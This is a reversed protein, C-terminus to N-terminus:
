RQPPAVEIFLLDLPAIKVDFTSRAPTLTSKRLETAPKSQHYVRAKWNAGVPLERFSVEADVPESTYNYIVVLVRGSEPERLAYTLVNPLPFKTKMRVQSFPQIDAWKMLDSMWPTWQDAADIVPLGNFFLVEGRGFPIKWAMPKGSSDRGIVEGKCSTNAGSRYLQAKFPKGGPLTMEVAVPDESWEPDSIIGLENRVANTPQEGERRFSTNWLVLKGGNRVFELARRQVSEPIDPHGGDIYLKVNRLKEDGTKETLEYYPPLGNYYNAAKLVGALGGWNNIVVRDWETQRRIRRVPRCNEYHTNDYVFGGILAIESDDILNFRSIDALKPALVRLDNWSRWTVPNAYAEEELGPAGVWRVTGRSLLPIIAFLGSNYALYSPAPEGWEFCILKPQYRYQDYQFYERGHEISFNGVCLRGAEALASIERGLPTDDEHAEAAFFKMEPAYESVARIADLYFQQPTYVLKFDLFDLWEPRQDTARQDKPLPQPLKIEEYSSITRGYRRSLDELSLKRYDRLYERFAREAWVSYDWVNDTKGGNVYLNTYEDFYFVELLPPRLDCRLLRGTGIYREALKGWLKSFHERFLPSSVSPPSFFKMKWFNRGTAPKGYQDRMIYEPTRLWEPTQDDAFYLTINFFKGQQIVYNVLDDLDAFNYVGPLPELDGWFYELQMTNLGHRFVNDVTHRSKRQGLGDYQGVAGALEVVPPELKPVNEWSPQPAAGAVGFLYRNRSFVREGDGIEATLYYPGSPLADLELTEEVAKGLDIEMERLPKESLPRRYYDTLRLTLRAPHSIDAKEDPTFRFRIRPKEGPQWVPMNETLKLDPADFSIKGGGLWPSPLEKGYVWFREVWWANQPSPEFFRIRVADAAIPADFRILPMTAEDLTKPQFVTEWKGNLRREIVYTPRYNPSKKFIYYLGITDFKVPEAYPFDLQLYPQEPDVSDFNPSMWGRRPSTNVLGSAPPIPEDSQASEASWPPNSYSGPSSVLARPSFNIRDELKRDNPTIARLKRYEPAASAVFSAACTGAIGLLLLKKKLSM